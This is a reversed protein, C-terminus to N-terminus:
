CFTTANLSVIRPSPQISPRLTRISTRQIAPENVASSIRAAATSSAASSGSTMTVVPAGIRPASCLPLGLGDRDNERQDGIRDTIAEDCIERPGATVDGAEGNELM